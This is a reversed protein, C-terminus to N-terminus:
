FVFRGHRYILVGGAIIEGKKMDKVMDVHIASKNKGQCEELAKGLACHISDGMKEDFLLNKTCQKIGRNMGIAIEGLRSSGEDLEIISKLTKEGQDASYDVVHGAEFRLKVGEILKGQHLFPVDFYISGEVSEEVPSTYIEGSPMNHKGDEIMWVRGNTEAYLDTDPGILHIDSHTNLRKCLTSMSKSLDKWNILIADYAFDKFEDITMGAQQALANCPHITDCWKKSLHLGFLPERTRARLALKESDVDALVNIARPANIWIVVDSAELASKYHLPFLSLTQNDAHELYTRLLEDSELLVLYSAKRKAVEGIIAMVLDFAEPYAIILVMEGEQVQTSWNTLVEAHKVM